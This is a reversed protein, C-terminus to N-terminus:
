KKLIIQLKNKNFITKKGKYLTIFYLCFWAFLIFFLITLIAYRQLISKKTM